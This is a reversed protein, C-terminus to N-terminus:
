RNSLYTRLPKEQAIIGTNRSFSKPIDITRKFCVKNTKNGKCALGGFAFIGVFSIFLLATLTIIFRFM